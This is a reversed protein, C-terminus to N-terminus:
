VALRDLVLQSVRSKAALRQVIKGRRNFDYWDGGHVGGENAEVILNSDLSGAFPGHRGDM